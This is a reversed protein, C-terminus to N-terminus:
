IASSTPVAQLLEVEEKDDGSISSCLKRSSHGKGNKKEVMNNLQVPKQDHERKRTHLRLLLL